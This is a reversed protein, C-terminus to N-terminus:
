KLAIKWAQLTIGLQYHKHKYAAKLCTVSLARSNPAPGKNLWIRGNNIDGVNSSWTHEFNHFKHQVKKLRYKNLSMWIRFGKTIGQLWAGRYLNSDENWVNSNESTKMKLHYRMQACPQQGLLM